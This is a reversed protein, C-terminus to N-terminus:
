LDADDFDFVHGGGQSQILTRNIDYLAANAARMEDILQRTEDRKSTCYSAAVAIAFAGIAVGAALHPLGKRVFEVTTRLYYAISDRLSSM